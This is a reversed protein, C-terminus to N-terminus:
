IIIHITPDYFIYLLGLLTILQIFSVRAVYEVGHMINNVIKLNFCFYAQQTINM